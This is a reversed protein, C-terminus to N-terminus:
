IANEINRQIKMMWGVSGYMNLPELPDMDPSEYQFKNNECLDLNDVEIQDKITTLMDFCTDMILTEKVIDWNKTNQPHAVSVSLTLSHDGIKFFELFLFYGEITRIREAIMKESGGFVFDNLGTIIHDTTLSEIEQRWNLYDGEPSSFSFNKLVGQRDAFKAFYTIISQLM